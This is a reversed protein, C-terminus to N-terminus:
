DVAKQLIRYNREVMEQPDVSLGAQIMANDYIQLAVEAAFMEDSDILEALKCILRNATNIELNKKSIEGTLGKEMRGAAM